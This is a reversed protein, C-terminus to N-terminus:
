PDVLLSSSSPAARSAQVIFRRPAQGICSFPFCTILTLDAGTSPDLVSLDDPDVVRTRTV